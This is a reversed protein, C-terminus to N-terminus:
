QELQRITLNARRLRDSLERALASVLKIAVDPDRDRLSAFARTSLSFAAMPEDATVTASRPGHDLIALEGFVSGPAFTVLRVRGAETTLYVSAHGRTVLFLDSGPDGQKFVIHDAPMDVRKLHSALLGIQAATFDRLISISELPLEAADVSTHKELLDDEAWEIARDIDPFIRSPPNLLDSLRTTTEADDSRVLGLKINRSTLAADIDAVIRAGTSDIETVRRLGLIVDTTPASTEMNIIHALREATGFFLAGQLEVVLISAGKTELLAMERGDRSKRSRVEDCRYVRRVHSRSMRVVFLFLALTIGIFVALVVNLAISVVSVFMAVALDLAITARQPADRRMLRRVTQKTWPDIHQVAVVMIVGSLAVRPIYAVLPFLLTLVALLMAANVVVSVCSHGGLARNTVSAGINIGSTIGGFGASAANALGLRVLLGDGAVDLAGPPSALKLCLLADMSAIFALALASTLIVPASHVLLEAISRSSFDALVNNMTASATPLGIVPGLATGFGALLLFYYAAIGCGLGVLLPPVIATLKRAHWMAAFTLGAVLVSLPRASGLYGFARTFGISKDFGLVNGIQVLFLLAAAMNQFGAMVPHPTFKILTGLRMLGFLAQFVGGVLVIAFFVALAASASPTRIADSHLLSNLLLGLFFTTTVRPAYVMTSREGLMVNVMGVVLASILGSVAGWAFYQDGLSVFAFMGFGIALPIAVASSVVGGVLDGRLSESPFSSVPRAEFLHRFTGM